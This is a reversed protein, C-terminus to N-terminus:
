RSAGGYRKVRKCALVLLGIGPPGLAEVNTLDIRLCPPYDRLAEVLRERLYTLGVGDFEGRPVVAVGDNEARLEIDYGTGQGNRGDHRTTKASGSREVELFDILGNIELVRRIMPQAGTVEFNGGSKRIRKCTTVLLGIGTQGL